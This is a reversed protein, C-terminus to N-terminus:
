IYKFSGSQGAKETSSGHKEQGSDSDSYERANELPQGANTSVQFASDFNAADWDAFKLPSNQGLLADIADPDPAEQQCVQNHESHRSESHASQEKHQFSVQLTTGLEPTVHAKPDVSHSSHQAEHMSTGGSVATTLLSVSQADVSTSAERMSHINTQTLIATAQMLEHHQRVPTVNNSNPVKQVGDIFDAPLLLADIDDDWAAIDQNQNQTLLIGNQKQTITQARQESIFKKHLEKDKHQYTSTNHATDKLTIAVTAVGPELGVIHNSRGRM